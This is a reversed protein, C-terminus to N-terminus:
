IIYITFLDISGCIKVWLSFFLFCSLVLARSPHSNFFKRPTVSRSSIDVTAPEHIMVVGDYSSWSDYIYSFMKKLFKGTVMDEQISLGKKM